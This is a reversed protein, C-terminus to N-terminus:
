TKIDTFLFAPKSRVIKQNETHTKKKLWCKLSSGIVPEVLPFKECWGFAAQAALNSSPM